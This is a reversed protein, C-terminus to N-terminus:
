FSRLIQVSGDFLNQDKLEYTSGNPKGAVNGAYTGVLNQNLRSFIVEASLTLNKVPTWATRTGVQAVALNFNGSANLVGAKAGVGSTNVGLGVAGPSSFSAFLLNTANANYEISSYSGFLSTRWQPNWYHEYFASVDWANSKQIQTGDAASTGSFVGDLAYGFALSNRAGPLSTSGFKAFRGGGIVDFTGGFVYRAAGNAFTAELKLSDGTGTPLNKLEVAGTLAYGWADNPHGSIQNAPNYYTATINHLAAGLHATGWTQDTRLNTVVDPVHIGGESNGLFYNAGTPSASGVGLFTNQGPAIIYTSANYLGMRRFSSPNELSITASAVSGIQATYALQPIGTANNSGSLLGSTIYPRSLTWQPDFQSVAKGFTFGVFQIFAYDTAVFGGAISERGDFFDLQINSYTRLSGYDTSTRTDINMNVRERSNFYPKTFLGSSGAGSQYFPVEYGGSNFSTDIRIAGGIRICTDAGPISWFGVGHQSCVKVYEVPKAKFANDAAQAAVVSASCVVAITLVKAKVAKGHGGM